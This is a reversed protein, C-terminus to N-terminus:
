KYGVALRLQDLRQQGQEGGILSGIGNPNDWTSGCTLCVVETGVYYDGGGQNEYVTKAACKPCFKFDESKGWRETYHHSEYMEKPKHRDKAKWNKNRYYKVVIEIM